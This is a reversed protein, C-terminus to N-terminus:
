LLGQFCYSGKMMCNKLSEKMNKLFTINPGVWWSFDSHVKFRQFGLEVLLSNVTVNWTFLEERHYVWTVLHGSFLTPNRLCHTRMHMCTNLGHATCLILLPIRLSATYEESIELVSWVKFYMVTGMPRPKGKIKLATLVNRLCIRM